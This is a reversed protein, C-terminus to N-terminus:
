SRALAQQRRWLVFQDTLGVATIPFVPAALLALEATTRLLVFTYGAAVFVGVARPRWGVDPEPRLAVVAGAGVGAVIGTVADAAIASAPIGVLLALGMARVVAGPGRPHGSLFVLAIFVFPIVAVGFALAAGANPADTVGDEGDRVASVMGALMGWFGPVLVLTAVTIAQWKRKPTLPSSGGPPANRPRAM